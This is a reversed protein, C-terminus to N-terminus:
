PTCSLTLHLCQSICHSSRCYASKHATGDQLNGSSEASRENSWPHWLSPCTKSLQKQSLVAHAGTRHLAPPKLDSAGAAQPPLEHCAPAPHFLDAPLAPSSKLCIWRLYYHCHERDWASPHACWHQASYFAELEVM